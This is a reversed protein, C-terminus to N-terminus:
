CLLLCLVCVCVCVARFEDCQGNRDPLSTRRRMRAWRRACCGRWQMGGDPCDPGYDPGHLCHPTQLPRATIDLTRAARGTIWQTTSSSPGCCQASCARTSDSTKKKGVGPLFGSGARVWAALVPWCGCLKLCQQRPKQLRGSQQRAWSWGRDAHKGSKAAEHLSPGQCCPAVRRVARAGEETSGAGPLM